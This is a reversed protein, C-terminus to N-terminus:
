FEIYYHDCTMQGLPNKRCDVAPQSARFTNTFGPIQASSDLTDTEQSHNNSEWPLRSITRTNLIVEARAPNYPSYNHAYTQWLYDWYEGCTSKRFSAVPHIETESRAQVFRIKARTSMLRKNKRYYFIQTFQRPNQYLQHKQAIEMSLPNLTPHFEYDGKAPETNSSFWRTIQKLSIAPNFVRSVIVAPEEDTLLTNLKQLLVDHTCFRWLGEWDTELNLNLHDQSAIVGFKVWREGFLSEFTFLSAYARKDKLSLICYDYAFKDPVALSRLPKASIFLFDLYLLMHQSLDSTLGADDPTVAPCAAKAEQCDMVPTLLALCLESLAYYSNIYKIGSFVYIDATLAETRILEPIDKLLQRFRANYKYAQSPNDDSLQWYFVSLRTLEPETQTPPATTIDPNQRKKQKKKRHQQLSPRQTLSILERHKRHLPRTEPLLQADDSQAYGKGFHAQEEPLTALLITWIYDDLPIPAFEESADKTVNQRASAFDNASLWFSFSCLLVSFVSVPLRMINEKSVKKTDTITM